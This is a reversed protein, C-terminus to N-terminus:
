AQQADEDRLSELAARIVGTVTADRQRAFGVLWEHLDPDIQLM